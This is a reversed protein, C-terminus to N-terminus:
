ILAPHHSIFGSRLVGEGWGEMRGLSWELKEGEEEEWGGGGGRAACPSL